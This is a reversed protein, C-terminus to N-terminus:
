RCSGLGTQRSARSAASGGAVTYCHRNVLGIASTAVTAAKAVLLPLPGHQGTELAAPAKAVVEYLEGIPTARLQQNLQTVSHGFGHERLTPFLREPDHIPHLALYAEQTLSWHVDLTGADWIIAARGLVGVEAKWPGVSWGHSARTADNRLVCLM